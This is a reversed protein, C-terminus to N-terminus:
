ATKKTPAPKRAESQASPRHEAGGDGSPSRRGSIEHQLQQFAPAEVLEWDQGENWPGRADTEGRDGTGTSDNFYQTVLDPTPPIRGISFPPKGM